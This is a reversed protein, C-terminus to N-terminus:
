GVVLGGVDYITSFRRSGSDAEVTEQLWLLTPNASCRSYTASVFNSDWSNCM